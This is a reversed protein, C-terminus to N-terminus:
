RSEGITDAVYAGRQGMPKSRGVTSDRATQHEIESNVEAGILLVYASLYFWFLLIVFAGVSGYTRNYNGFNSVYYSFLVSGALWLVTALVSGYSIWQWRPATRSPGVRYIVAIMLIVAAALLPWRILSVFLQTSGELGLLNLAAPLAVVAGIAILGFVVGAVTLMLGVANTKIFGRTEQEDYAINLAVMMSKIGKTASWLSLALSGAAALGLGREPASVLDNLQQDLLSWAQAPLLESLAQMQEQVQEPDAVLGYIAVAAALAPFVALLSFFAVGAAVISLNDEQMQSWVRLLIDRWGRGPIQWPLEADRGRGTELAQDSGSM